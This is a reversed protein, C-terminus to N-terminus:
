LGRRDLWDLVTRGVEEAGDDIQLFHGLGEATEHQGLHYLATRFSSPYCVLRDETGGIVLTPLGVLAAPVVPAPIHADILALPAEPTMRAAYRAAQERPLKDSFLVQAMAAETPLQADALSGLCAELWITPDTLALRPSEWFLGEPPLSGMLVLGRMPERGILLQALLGGLSHGVVIPPEGLHRLARQLDGVFDVLRAGRLRAHGESSGHGRLSFAAVARGRRVFYPMFIESWMWAGGFAGHVFLIPAGSPPGEPRAEVYELLPSGGAEPIPRRQIPNRTVPGVPQPM